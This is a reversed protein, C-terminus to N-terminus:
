AAVDGGVSVHGMGKGHVGTSNAVTNVAPFLSVMSLNSAPYM